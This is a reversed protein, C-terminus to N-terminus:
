GAQTQTKTKPELKEILARIALLVTESTFGSSFGLAVSTARSGPEVLYYATIAILPASIVQLIQFVLYERAQDPTIPGKAAQAAVAAQAALVQAAQTAQAAQAAQAAQNGQGAQAAQAAQTAQAAQAVQLQAAQVAQTAQAAQAQATQAGRPTPGGQVVRRQYEPVRRTMSVAAGMLSLVVFYLPVVLGGTLSVREFEKANEQGPRQRASGINIVWQDTDNECKLEKPVSKVNDKADSKPEKICGIVIGIPSELMFQYLGPVRSFLIFPVVSGLLALLTFFYCFLIIQSIKGDTVVGTFCYLFWAILIIVAGFSSWFLTGNVWGPVAQGPASSESGSYTWVTWILVFFAILIAVPGGWTRLFTWLRAM